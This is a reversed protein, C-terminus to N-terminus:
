PEDEGSITVIGITGEYSAGFVHEHIRSNVMGDWSEHLHGSLIGFVPSDKAVVNRLFQSTVENPVYHTSGDLGWIINKNWMNVTTSSLSGDVLSNLPVHMLLLVPKGKEFLKNMEDLTNSAMQSTNNDWGIIIFDDFEMKFLGNITGSWAHNEGIDELTTTDNCWWPELDHDARVYMYPVQLEDIGMKLLKINNDSAFDIMDGGFLVADPNYRNVDYILKFWAQNRDRGDTPSFNVYRNWVSAIDRENIDDDFVMLHIDSLYVFRYERDLGDIKFHVREINYGIETLGELSISPVEPEPTPTPTPTSTPTQTPTPAPTPTQAFAPVSDAVIESDNEIETVPAEAMSEANFVEDATQRKSACFYAFLGSLIVISFILFIIIKTIKKM